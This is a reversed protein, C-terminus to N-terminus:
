GDDAEDREWLAGTIAAAVAADNLHDTNIVLDAHSADLAETGFHAALYRQIAQDTRAVRRAAEIDDLHHERAYARVRLPLSGILFVKLVHPMHRTVWTAGRGVLICHGLRALRVITDNTLEFLEWNYPTHLFVESLLDQVRPYHDEPMHAALQRPLHHDELVQQVLRDDFLMWHEDPPSDANLRDLLIKEIAAVRTGAQRAIALAPRQPRNSRAPLALQAKVYAACAPLSSASGNM